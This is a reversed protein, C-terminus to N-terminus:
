RGGGVRKDSTAEAIAAELTMPPSKWGGAAFIPAQDAYHASSRDITASGFQHITRIEQAGDPAWDTYLIYTDGGVATWQGRRREDDPYVARLLEPAGDIAVDVAGRRLRMVEGWAPDIRGFSKKLEAAAQILAARPEPTEALENNMYWGLALRATRIALAAARSERSASRDWTKLLAIAERTEPDDALAADATLGDIVGAVRSGDSYRHDM